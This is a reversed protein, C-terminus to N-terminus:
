KSDSKYEYNYYGYSGYKVSAKKEVANLIFGKVEIGNQEFRHKAIEIEKLSTQAFRGVMFTTGAHKGIIAADTVALIPPTDIIICDYNDEAWDLLVKLRPHMLLESPNPPITGRTICDLGEFEISQIINELTCQGSLYESLGPKEDCQLIKHIHGKRMDAGILLVKQGSQAIVAAMNTAIFSKGMSPAPGSIMLVKNSAEMMAFHLSTRLSRLAEISLDAPNILALLTDKITLKRGKKTLKEKDLQLDSLPVVSYVPLGIEEIDDPSEVGKHMAARLLVIAVSLMGGLLTALVAILPKKPKVANTYAQASDIIRVNGVTSAKVINLEQVKNLLQIYIQQTVEVDRAMRLIERQTKPLKEIRKELRKKENLLTQRKDLLAQYAPHQKTYLKSIDSEKFTLENLQSELTVMVDLTSKAEMNLDVSENNQRYINLKDEAKTLQQKIEPLHKKLFILSSEAEASNRAVNQLLYNESIDNLIAQIDSRNEGTLSLQLIGTQKGRESVSLDQQLNQIADLRSIKGVSFSDGEDAQINTVFLTYDDNEALAGIKGTLIERDESNTLTYRGQEKNILTLTYSDPLADEPLEFRAIDIYPASGTFRSLGKGIIPFHNASAVTTLNLNDVTKGLVMRSKLIEIETTAPSETSFLDTMESSLAPMGTSKQEVQILADTKYIPTALLAYSVGFIAFVFTVGLIFGRSDLLLGFLKALDIVDNNHPARQPSNQNVSM